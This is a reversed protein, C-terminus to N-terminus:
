KTKYLQRQNICSSDIQQCVELGTKIEEYVFYTFSMQFAFWNETQKSLRLGSSKKPYFETFKMNILYVSPFEYNLCSQDGTMATTVLGQSFLKTPPQQYFETGVPIGFASKTM